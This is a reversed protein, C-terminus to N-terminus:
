KCNTGLNRFAFNDLRGGRREEMSINTIYLLKEEASTKGFDPSLFHSFCHIDRSSDLSASLLVCLLLYAIERKSITCICVYMCVIFFQISTYM